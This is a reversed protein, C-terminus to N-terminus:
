HETAQPVQLRWAPQRMRGAVRRLSAWANEWAERQRQRRALKAEYNAVYRTLRRLVEDKQRGGSVLGPRFLRFADRIPIDLFRAVAGFCYHQEYEVYYGSYGAARIVRLGQAAVEPERTAWGIACGVPKGHGDYGWWVSMDFGEVPAREVAGIVQQLRQITLNSEAMLEVGPRMGRLAPM